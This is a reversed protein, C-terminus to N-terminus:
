AHVPPRRRSWPQEQELEFALEFLMREQGPAAAFQTGIPLGDKSWSLPVSMATNGAVNVIPTYGVYAILREVLLQYPVDGRIFGLPVAPSALVPSLVVDYRQFFTLYSHGAQGVINKAIAIERAPLTRAKEALGLTFPELDNPGPLRGLAKALHEAIELADTAWLTLFAETFGKVLVPWRAEEVHHGLSSCLKAAGKTAEAVAADAPRGNPDQALWGIKLRKRSPGTVLGVSPFTADPGAKEIAAFVGAADRVTRAVCNRVSLETPDTGEGVIRGRSPKLGFVGCCSSPIRISGGGDSASAVPVVGAATASASGGSSGGASRSVDWPNRTPAANLPETTALLGFEPTASKGIPIFGAAVMAAVSPLSETAPPAHASSRSGNRTPLGQYDHLDKILTPVGAFPGALPQDSRRLARDFDPTVLFGLKPNLNEARRIAAEVAERATIEKRRILDATQTADVFALDRGFHPWADGCAALPAAAASALFARRDLKM